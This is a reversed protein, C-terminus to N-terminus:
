SRREFRYVTWIPTREQWHTPDLWLMWAPIHRFVPEAQYGSVTPLPGLRRQLLLDGPAVPAAPTGVEDLRPVSRDTLSPARYFEAPGATLRYLSPLDSYLVRPTVATADYVYHWTPVAQNLPRILFFVFAVLNIPLCLRVLSARTRSARHSSQWQDWGCVALWLLPLIMPFLFRLEKHGLASHGLVFVAVAWTLPHRRQRWAGLGALALLAVSVPPVASVFSATLYYWWPMVGFEAAKGQLVNVQLYRWFTLVPVGYFWRDVLVGLGVAAAAGASVLTVDRWRRTGGLTMWAVIPVVALAIQFRFDFALGFLLGAGGIRMLGRDVGELELPLLSVGTLFALASWQESSFRVSLVPVFWLAVALLFLLKGSGATRSGAATSRCFRAYVLIALVGTLLRLGFAITFPNMVGCARFAKIVALAIAPQLAPRIRAGFEWPLDAAAIGGLKYDAFELIQFHEDPHFFGESVFAALGYVSIGTAVLASWSWRSPSLV